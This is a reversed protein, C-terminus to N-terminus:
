RRNRRSNSNALVKDANYPLVFAGGKNNKLVNGGKTEVIYSGFTHSRLVFDGDAFIDVFQKNTLGVVGGLEGIYDPDLHDKFENFDSQKMNYSPAQVSVSGYNVMGGIAAKVALNFSDSDISNLATTGDEKEYHVYAGRIASRVAKNMGARRYFVNNSVNGIKKNLSISIDKLEDPNNKLYNSGILIAEAQSETGHYATIGAIAFASVSGDTALQEFLLTSRDGLSATVSTSFSLQDSLSMNNFQSSMTQAEANTLLKGNFQQFHEEAIDMENLRLRMQRALGLPNDSDLPSLSIFGVDSASQMLDTKELTSQKRIAVDLRRKFQANEFDNMDSNKAIEHAMKERKAAPENSIFSYATSFYKAAKYDAIKAPNVGADQAEKILANLESPDSAKVNLSNETAIRVKRGIMKKKVKDDAAGISLIRNRNMMLKQKWDLREGRDLDGDYAKNEQSLFAIYKNIEDINDTLMVDEYANTEENKLANIKLDALEAKSGIGGDGMDKVIQLAQRTEGRSMANEYEIKQDSFIQKDIEKNAKLQLKAMKAASVSTAEEKWISRYEGDEIIKSADNIIDKLAAERMQPFVEASPVRGKMKMGETVFEKPIEDVNYFERNWEADFENIAKNVFLGSQQQHRKGVRLRKAQNSQNVAMLTNAVSNLMKSKSNDIRSPGLRGLSQVPGRPPANLKM